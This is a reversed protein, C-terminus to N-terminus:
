TIRSRISVNKGNITHLRGSASEPGDFTLFAFKHRRSKRNSSGKPISCGLYNGFYTGGFHDDMEIQTFFLKSNNNNLEAKLAARLTIESM